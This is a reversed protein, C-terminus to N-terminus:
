PTFIISDQFESYGSFIGFGNEINSYVQVPEGFPNGSNEQYNNYTVRYKFLDASMSRLSIILYDRSEDYYDSMRFTYSTGNFSKDSFLLEQSCIEGTESATGEVNIDKSCIWSDYAYTETEFVGPETEWTYSSHTRASLSYYNTQNPNDDIQIDIYLQDGIRSTDIAIINVISPTTSTSTINDFNPHSVTLQYSNGAQPLSSALYYNGEMDHTFTGLENNSGDFLKATADTINPLTGGNNYLINRSESLHIKVTDNAAFVSNVVIRPKIQDEDLPIEKECSALLSLFLIISLNQVLKM